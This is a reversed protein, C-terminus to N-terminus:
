RGPVPVIQIITRYRTSQTGSVHLYGEGGGYTYDKVVVSPQTAMTQEQFRGIDFQQMAPARTLERGGDKLVQKYYALMDAYNMNTGFLYCRQDHGLDYSTLFEATPYIVGPIGLTADTPTAGPRPTTVPSNPSAPRSPAEVAPAVAPPASPAPAPPASSGGPRPFPLPPPVDQQAGVPVISLGFLVLLVAINSRV